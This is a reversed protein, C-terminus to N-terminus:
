PIIEGRDTGCRTQPYGLMYRALSFIMKSCHSPEPAGHRMDSMTSSGVVLAATFAQDTEQALETPVGSFELLQARVAFQCLKPDVDAVPAIAQNQSLDGFRQDPKKM